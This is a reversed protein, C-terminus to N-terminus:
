GDGTALLAVVVLLVVAALRADVGAITPQRGRPRGGDAVAERRRRLEAAALEAVHRKDDVADWPVGTVAWKTVGSEPHKARSDALLKLEDVDLGALWRRRGSEEEAAGAERRDLEDQAVQRAITPDVDDLRRSQGSRALEQVDVTEWRAVARETREAARQRAEQARRQERRREREAEISAELRDLDASPPLPATGTQSM